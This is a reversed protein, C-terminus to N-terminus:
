VEENKAPTVVEVVLWRKRKSIPRVLKMTVLDGPKCKKEADHALFTSKRKIIKKYEPHQLIREVSISVTKDAKASIVVGQVLRNVKAKKEM